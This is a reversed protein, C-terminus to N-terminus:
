IEVEGISDIRIVGEPIEENKNSPMNVLYVNPINTENKVKRITDAKDDIFAVIDYMEQLRRLKLSKRKNFFLEDYPLREKILSFETEPRFIEPRATIFIIKYGKNIFEKIKKQVGTKKKLTVYLQSEYEKFTEELDKPLEWEKIDNVKYNADYMFNHVDVLTHLFNLSVDDLDIAVAAQRDLPLNLYKIAEKLTQVSDQFFGLGVNCQYCLLGRFKGTNHDHDVHLKKKGPVSGCIKCLGNQNKLINDYEKKTINYKKKLYTESRKEKIRVKNEVHYGKVREKISSKNEQYYKKSQEVGKKSRQYKSYSERRIDKNNRNYEINAANRCEKCANCLGDKTQPHKHFETKSKIINCKVCKKM